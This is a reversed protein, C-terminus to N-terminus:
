PAVEVIRLAAVGSRPGLLLEELGDRDGDVVVLSGVEAEVPLAIADHHRYGRGILAWVPSAHEVLALLDRDGDRDLDTVVVTSAPGPLEPRQAVGLSGEGDGVVVTIGGEEDPVLLDVDGDGDVDAAIVELPPAPLGIPAPDRVLGGAGGRWLELQMAVRDVVPLDLADDADVAAPDGVRLRRGEDIRLPETLAGTSPDVVAQWLGGDDVWAVWAPGGRTLGAAALDLAPETLVVAEGFSWGGEALGRGLHLAPADDDLVVLDLREDDDLAALRLAGRAGVGSAEAVVSWRGQGDGAWQEPIGDVNRVVLDVRSDGDLDAALLEGPSVVPGTGLEADAVLCLEGRQALGDGCYGCVETRCRQGDGCDEDGGCISGLTGEGRFCAGGLGLVLGGLTRARAGLIGRVM